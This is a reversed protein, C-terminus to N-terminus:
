KDNRWKEAEESGRPGSRMGIMVETSKVVAVAEIGPALGLREASQRTILAVLEQPAVAITVEAMLGDTVISRVRGILQNRASLDVAPRGVAGSRPQRGRMLQSRQFLWRRGHRIAPIHGQRALLQVRKVHLHLLAAAEAATLLDGRPM